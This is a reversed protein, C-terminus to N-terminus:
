FFARSILFSLIREEIQSFLPQFNYFLLTETLFQLFCVGNENYQFTQETHCWIEWNTIFKHLFPDNNSHFQIRTVRFVKLHPLFSKIFQCRISCFWNKVYSVRAKNTGPQRKSCISFVSKLRVRKCKWLMAVCVCNCRHETIKARRNKKM